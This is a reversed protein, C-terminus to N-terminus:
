QLVEKCGLLIIEGSKIKAERIKQRVKLGQEKGFNIADVIKQEEACGAHCGNPVPAPLGCMADHSVTFAQVLNFLNDM